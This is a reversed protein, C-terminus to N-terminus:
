AIDRSSSTSNLNFINGETQLKSLTEMILSYEQDFSKQMYPCLLDNTEPSCHTTVNVKEQLVPKTNRLHLDPPRRHIEPAKLLWMPPTSTITEMTLSRQTLVAHDSYPIEIQFLYCPASIADPQSLGPMPPSSLAISTSEGGTRVKENGTVLETDSLPLRGLIM